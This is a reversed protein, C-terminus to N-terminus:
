QKRSKNEKTHKLWQSQSFELICYINRLKLGIRLYLQLNEYLPVYKKKDFFNPVLNKVNGFPINYLDAITLHHESLM